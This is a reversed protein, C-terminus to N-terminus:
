AASADALLESRTGPLAPIEEQKASNSVCLEGCASVSLGEASLVEIGRRRIEVAANVDAHAEHGCSVCVFRDQSLRSDASVYGCAQCTQSSHHPAVKIVRRGAWKAKYDLMDGFMGWGRDLIERNLGAKQAVNRGPEIVSGKASKTMNRIKLDEIVIVDHNKILDHTIKHLQDKRRRAMKAKFASLREVAKRRNASGRTKRAIDRQLRSSRAREKAGETGRGLFAGSSTVVPNAVGRDIGVARLDAIRARPDRMERETVVSAYWHGGERIITVTKMRGLVQRHRLVRIRGHDKKMRGFKPM